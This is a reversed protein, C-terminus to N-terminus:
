VEESVTEWYAEDNWFSDIEGLKQEVHRLDGIDEWDMKLVRGRERGAHITLDKVLVEIHDLALIAAAVKSNRSSEGPTGLVALALGLVEALTKAHDTVTGALWQEVDVLTLCEQLIDLREDQTLEITNAVTRLPVMIEMATAEGVEEDRVHAEIRAKHEDYKTKEM